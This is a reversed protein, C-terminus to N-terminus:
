EKDLTILKLLDELSQNYENAAIQRLEWNPAEYDRVSQKKKYDRELIEKLADFANRYNMVEARRKEKDQGKLGKVWATQM